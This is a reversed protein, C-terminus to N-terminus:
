RSFLRRVAGVLQDLLSEGQDSSPEPYPYPWTPSPGPEPTVWRCVDVQVDDVYMWSRENGWGNNYVNLYLVITRGRYGSLDYTVRTWTQSNSNLRMVKALLNYSTNLILCEQFDDDAWLRTDASGAARVGASGLIADAPDYGEWDVQSSETWEPSEAFPKYWFSLQASQADAPIYLTQYASSHSYYDTTPPVIGCRISQVGGHAQATSYGAVRATAGFSWGTTAECDGNVSIDECM